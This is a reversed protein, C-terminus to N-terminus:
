LVPFTMLATPLHNFKLPEIPLASPAFLLGPAQWGRRFTLPSLGGGGAGTTGVAMFIVTKRTLDLMRCIKIFNRPGFNKLENGLSIVSM